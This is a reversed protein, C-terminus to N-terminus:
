PKNGWIISDIVGKHSRTSVWIMLCPPVTVATVDCCYLSVFTEFLQESRGSEYRSKVAVDCRRRTKDGALEIGHCWGIQSVSVAPGVRKIVSALGLIEQIARTDKNTVTRKGLRM